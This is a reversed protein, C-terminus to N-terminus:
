RPEVKKSFCHVEVYKELAHTSSIPSSAKFIADFMCSRDKERDELIKTKPAYIYLFHVVSNTMPTHTTDARYSDRCPM